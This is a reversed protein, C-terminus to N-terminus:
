SRKLQEQRLEHNRIALGFSDPFVSWKPQAQVRADTHPSQAPGAASSHAWRGQDIGHRPYLSALPASLAVRTRLTM